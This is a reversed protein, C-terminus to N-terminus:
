SSTINTAIQHQNIPVSFIAARSDLTSCSSSERQSNPNNSHNSPITTKNNIVHSIGLRSRTVQTTCKTSTFNETKDRFIATTENKAYVLQYEESNDEYMEYPSCALPKEEKGKKNHHQSHSTTITESPLTAVWDNM